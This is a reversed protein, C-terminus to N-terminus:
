YYFLERVNEELMLRLQLHVCKQCIVLTVRHKILSSGLKMLQEISAQMEINKVSKSALTELQVNIEDQEGALSINFIATLINGTHTGKLWENYKLHSRQQLNQTHEMPIAIGNHLSSQKIRNVIPIIHICDKIPVSGSAHPPPIM